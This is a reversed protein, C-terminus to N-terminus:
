FKRLKLKKIHMIYVRVVTNNYNYYPNPNFNPNKLIQNEPYLSRIKVYVAPTLSYTNLGSLNFSAYKSRRLKVLVPRSAKSTASKSSAESLVDSESM